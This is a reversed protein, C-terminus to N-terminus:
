HYAGAGGCRFPMPNEIAIALRLDDRRTIPRARRAAPKRKGEFEQQGLHQHVASGLDILRPKLHALLSQYQLAPVKFAGAGLDCSQAPCSEQM